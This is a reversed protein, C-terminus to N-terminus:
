KYSIIPDRVEEFFCCQCVRKFKLAIKKDMVHTPGVDVFTGNGVHERRHLPNKIELEKVDNFEVWDSFFHGVSGCERKLKYSLNEELEKSAKLSENLSAIRNKIDNTTLIQCELESLTVSNNKFEDIGM